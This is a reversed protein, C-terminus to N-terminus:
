PCILDPHQTYVTWRYDFDRAIRAAICMAHAQREIDFPNDTHLNGSTIYIKGKEDGVKVKGILITQPYPLYDSLMIYDLNDQSKYNIKM